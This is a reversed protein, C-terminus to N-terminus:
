YIHGIGGAGRVHSTCVPVLCPCAYPILHRTSSTYTTSACNPSLSTCVPCTRCVVLQNVFTPPSDNTVKTAASTTNPDVNYYIGAYIDM